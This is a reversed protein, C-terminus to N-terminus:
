EKTDRVQFLPSTTETSNGMIGYVSANRSLACLSAKSQPGITSQPSASVLEGAMTVLFPFASEATEGTGPLGSLKVIGLDGGRSPSVVLLASRLCRHAKPQPRWCHSTGPRSKLAPAYPRYAKDAREADEGTLEHASDLFERVRAAWEHFAEKAAAFKKLRSSNVAGM